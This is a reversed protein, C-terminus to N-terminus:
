SVSLVDKFSIFEIGKSVAYSVLYNLLAINNTADAGTLANDHFWPLLLLNNEYAYDVVAKITNETQSSVFLSWRHLEYMNSRAGNSQGYKIGESYGTACMGYYSGAIAKIQQNYAHYPYIIGAPKRDCKSEIFAEQANLFDVLDANSYSTYSTGGHTAIECGYDELMENVLALYTNDNLVASTSMLGMTLPINKNYTTKYGKFLPITNTALDAAGDDCSIAIYPKTLPGLPKNAILNFANAEPILNFFKGTLVDIVNPSGDHWETGYFIKVKSYDCSSSSTAMYFLLYVDTEGVTITVTLGTNGGTSMVNQVWYDNKAPPASFSCIQCRNGDAKKMTVTSNPEVQMLVAYVGNSTTIQGSGDTKPILNTTNPNSADFLNVTGPAGIDLVDKVTDVDDVTGQLSSDLKAKTISGDEVTTTAEPHDDLWDSVAGEIVAPDPTASLAKILGVIKGTDAM